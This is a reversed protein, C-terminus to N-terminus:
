SEGKNLIKEPIRDEHPVPRVWLPSCTTVDLGQTMQDSEMGAIELLAPDNITALDILRPVRFLAGGERMDSPIVSVVVPPVNVSKLFPKIERMTYGERLLMCVQGRTSLDALDLKRVISFKRTLAKLDLRKFEFLRERLVIFPLLAIFLAPSEIHWKDMLNKLYRRHLQCEARFIVAVGGLSEIQLPHCHPHYCRGGGEPTDPERQFRRVHGIYEPFGTPHPDSLKDVKKRPDPSSTFRYVNRKPNLYRPYCTRLIRAGLDRNVTDLTVEVTRPALDLGFRELQVLANHVAEEYADHDLKRGCTFRIVALHLPRWDHRFRESCTPFLRGILDLPVDPRTYIKGIDPLHVLPGIVMAHVLPYAPNWINLFWRKWAPKTYFSTRPQEVPPRKLRYGRLSRSPKKRAACARPDCNDCGVACTEIFPCLDSDGKALPDARESLDWNEVGRALAAVFGRWNGNLLNANHDTHEFTIAMEVKDLRMVAPAHEHLPELV